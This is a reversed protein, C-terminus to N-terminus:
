MGSVNRTCFTQHSAHCLGLWVILGWKWIRKYELAWNSSSNIRIIHKHWVVKRIITRTFLHTSINTSSRCCASESEYKLIHSTVRMAPSKRGSLFFILHKWEQKKRHKNLYHKVTNVFSVKRTPKLKRTRNIGSHEKEKGVKLKGVNKRVSWLNPFCGGAAPTTCPSYGSRRTRQTHKCKTIMKAWIVSSRRSNDTLRNWYILQRIM